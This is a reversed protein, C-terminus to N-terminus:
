QEVLKSTEYSLAMKQMTALININLKILSHFKSLM